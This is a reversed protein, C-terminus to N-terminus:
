ASQRIQEREAGIEGFSRVLRIQYPSQLANFRDSFELGAGIEIESGRGCAVPLCLLCWLVALCSLRRLGGVERQEHQRHERQTGAYRCRRPRGDDSRRRPKRSRRGPVVQRRFGGGAARRPAPVPSTRSHAGVRDSAPKHAELKVGQLKPWKPWLYSATKPPRVSDAM